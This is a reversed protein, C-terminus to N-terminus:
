VRAEGGPAAQSVKLASTVKLLLLLFHLGPGLGAWSM